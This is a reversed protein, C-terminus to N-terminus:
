HATSVLPCPGTSGEAGLTLTYNHTVSGSGPNYTVSIQMTNGTVSGFFRASVGPRPSSLIPGSLNTVVGPVDFQGSSNLLLPQSITGESCDFFMTAENGFVDLIAGRTGWHGTPIPPGPPPPALPPFPVGYYKLLLSHITAYTSQASGPDGETCLSGATGSQLYYSSVAGSTLTINASDDVGPQVGITSCSQNSGAPSSAALANADVTLASLEAATIQGTLTLGSPSPGVIYNGNMDVSFGYAGACLDAGVVACSTNESLSTWGQAGSTPSPSATPPPAAQGPAQAGNNSGGGCSLNLFLFAAFAAKSRMRM